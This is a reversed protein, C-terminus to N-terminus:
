MQYADSDYFPINCWDNPPSTNKEKCCKIAGEKFEIGQKDEQSSIIAQKCERPVLSAIFATIKHLSSLFHMWNLASAIM